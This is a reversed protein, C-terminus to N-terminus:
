VGYELRFGLDRPLESAFIKRQTEYFDYEIRFNTISYEDTDFLLYSARFDNDRPQGVSGPNIMYYEQKQLYIKKGSELHLLGASRNYIVPIHTHGFFCIHRKNEKLCDLNENFQEAAFLYTIIHDPISAHVLMFVDKLVLLKQKAIVKMYKKDLHATTWIVAKQANLNLESLQIIGLVAAEHNGNLRTKSIDQLIGFVENPNPGYGIADGLFVIEDVDQSKIHTYAATLAELNSHIDSLFAYRM